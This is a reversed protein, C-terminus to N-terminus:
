DFEIMPNYKIGYLRCEFHLHTGTSEGTSGAFGITQGTEVVDGTSVAPYTLHAYITMKGNGHDIMVYNGYGGGCGCSGSKGWNHTCGSYSSVVTGKYAAVVTDGTSCGIDVAGHNYSSRDENWQSTLYYNGPCPWTYGTSSVEIDTPISTEAALEKYYNQIQKEIEESNLATQKLEKETDESKKYLKELTAKNEQVLKNLEDEDDQLSQKQTEIDSKSKELKNKEETVDDLETNISDILKKDYESLVKLLQVKDVLDSFDKAGLIIEIDSASGAMYLTKLRTCLAAIQEDIKENSKDIKTQKEEIDTNLKEISANTVAIKEDLVGIKDVLTEVYKEKKSIDSKTKELLEQYENNKEDLEQLKQALSAVDSSSENEAAVSASCFIPLAATCVAFFTCLMTKIKNM